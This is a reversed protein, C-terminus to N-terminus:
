WGLVNQTHKTYTRGYRKPNVKYHNIKGSYGEKSRIVDSPLIGPNLCKNLQMVSVTQMELISM